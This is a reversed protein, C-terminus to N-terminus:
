HGGLLKEGLVMRVAEAVRQWDDTAAALRRKGSATLRYYVRPRGNAMTRRTALLGEEELAHLMPYILGEGFSLLQNTSDRIASVIEYGYMPKDALLRLVLLEPVGNLFTGQKREDDRPMPQNAAYYVGCRSPHVPFIHGRAHRKLSSNRPWCGVGM